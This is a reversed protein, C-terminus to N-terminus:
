GGPVVPQDSVRLNEVRFTIGGSSGPLLADSTFRVTSTGAPLVVDLRVPVADTGLAVTADLEGPGSITVSGAADGYGAVALDLRVPRLAALPNTLELVAPSRALRRSVVRQGPLEPYPLLDGSVAIAPEGQPRLVGEKWRPVVPHLVGQRRDAVGPAGLEAVLRQGHSRLDWFLLSGDTSVVAPAGVLGAMERELVAAQDLFGARDVYLGSFGAAAVDDLFPRLPRGGLSWAWDTPRGRMAAYSWRLDQSHLYPRFLHYDAMAAIPFIHEPFSSLPLQFVAEGPGMRGEIEQVFRRDSAFVTRNQAYHPVVTVQTQDLVALALAVAGAAPAALRIRTPWAGAARLRSLVRPGASQLAIGLATLSFFAIFISMRSWIRLQAFGAATLVSSFGTAVSALIALLSLIGLQAVRARAPGIEGRGAPRLALGAVVVLSLALGAAGATGLPQHPAPWIPSPGAFKAKLAALAPVRHDTAPLFLDIVRLAYVDSEGPARTAVEVNTGHSRRYLLSPAINAAFVAGIVVIVAAARGVGALHRRGLALMGAAAVLIMTFPAFYSGASAIVMCAGARVLWRLRTGARNPEARALFPPGWLDWGLIDLVLFAGLPVAFYGSQFLHSEAPIFHYPLVTFLTAVGMSISRSLRLQRLVVYAVAAVFAFTLLFYVNMVLAWDGSVMGLGKIVLFQLNEGGLPFDHFELGFPAGLSPNRLYWGNEITGKITAAIFNADYSYIFPVRLDAKWLRLAFTVAAATLCLTGVLFAPEALWASRRGPAAGDVELTPDTPSPGAEVGLTEVM